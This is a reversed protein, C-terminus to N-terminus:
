VCVWRQLRQAFQYVIGTCWGGTPNSLPINWCYAGGRFERLWYENGYGLNAKCYDHPSMLDPSIVTGGPCMPAKDCPYTHTTYINARYGDGTILTNYTGPQAVVGAFPLSCYIDSYLGVYLWKGATSRVGCSAIQGCEDSVTVQATGCFGAPAEFMASAGGSTILNLQDSAWQLQGVGYDATIFVTGNPAVIRDAPPIRLPETDAHLAMALPQCTDDATVVSNPCIDRPAFIQQRNGTDEIIPRNNMFLLGGSARWTLPGPRGHLVELWVSGGPSIVSPNAPHPKLPEVDDCCNKAHVEWETVLEGCIGAKPAVPILRTGPGYIDLWRQPGGEIEAGGRWLSYTKRCRPLPRPPPVCCKEKYFEPDNVEDEEGECYVYGDFVSRNSVFYSSADAGDPCAVPVVERWVNTRKKSCNCMQYHELTQWCEKPTINEWSSVPGRCLRDLEDQSSREDTPPPSLECAAALDAWFAIVAAVPLEPRQLTDDERRRSKEEVPVKIRLQEYRTRYRLNLREVLGSLNITSGLVKATIDSSLGTSLGGVYPWSLDKSTAGNMELTETVEKEILETSLVEAGESRLTYGPQQHSRLVLVTAIWHQAQNCLDPGLVDRVVEELREEPPQNAPLGDADRIVAEGGGGLGQDCPEIDFLADIAKAAEAVSLSEDEPLLQELRLWRNEESGSAPRAVYRM